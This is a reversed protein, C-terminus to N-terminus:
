LWTILRMAKQSFFGFSVGCWLLLSFFSASVGFGLTKRSLGVSELDIEISNKQDDKKILIPRSFKNQDSVAVSSQTLEQIININAQFPDFM